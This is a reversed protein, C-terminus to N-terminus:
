IYNVMLYAYTHLPKLTLILNRFELEREKPIQIFDPFNAGGIFFVSRLSIDTQTGINEDSAKLSNAVVGSATIAGSLGHITLVGHGTTIGHSTYVVDDPNDSVLIPVVESGGSRNFIVVRSNGKDIAYLYNGSVSLGTPSSLGNGSSKSVFTEDSILFSSIEENTGDLVYINSSDVSVNVPNNFQGDGSGTTGITNLFALTDKNYVRINDNGTDTIYLKSDSIALGQPTSLGTISNIYALTKVDFLQLRTSDLVYIFDSNAVIGTANTFEGNGTGLVGFKARYTRSQRNFIQVRNNGSDVVYILDGHVFIGVPNIFEGDATGISGFTGVQENTNIDYIIVAHNDFDTVYLFTGDNAVRTSGVETNFQNFFSLDTIFLNEQVHISVPFGADVLQKQLYLHHQRPLISGPHRIKRIINDKRDQLETNPSLPLGLKGEWALADEATFNDNDPYVQDLLGLASDFLKGESEALGKHLKLLNSGEFMRFARGTPYLQKTLDILQKTSDIGNM